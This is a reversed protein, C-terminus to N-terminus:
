IANTYIEKKLTTELKNKLLRRGESLHWKSTGPSIGLLRGIEEHKYGELVFLNFVLATNQPLDKLLGIVENGSLRNYVDPDVRIIDDHSQDISRSAFKVQRRCHDICTNAVIRRIWGMLEGSGRYQPLSTLIKLMSENYLAGAEDPDRAYRCCLKMMATYCGRYLREQDQPNQQKCGNIINDWDPEL